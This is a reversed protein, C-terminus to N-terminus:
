SSAESVRTRRNSAHRRRGVTLLVLAGGLLLVALALEAAAIADVGTSALAAIADPATVTLDLAVTVGSSVGTLVIQHAGPATGAPITVTATVTGTPSATVTTLLVPDSHLVVNVQEGPAFGSGTVTVPDGVAVSTDSLTAHASPTAVSLCGTYHGTHPFTTSLVSTSTDTATLLVGTITGQLASPVDVRGSFTTSIDVLGHTVTFSGLPYLGASGATCQAEGYVDIRYSSVNTSPSDGAVTVVGGTLTATVDTPTGIATTTPPYVYASGTIRYLSNGTLDPTSAGGRVDIATAVDHITTGSVQVRTGDGLRVGSAADFLTDNAIRFPASDSVSGGDLQIAPGAVHAITTNVIGDHDPSVAGTVHIGAAGGNPLAGGHVGVGITARDLQLQVPDAGASVDVAPGTNGAIVVCPSGCAALAPAGNIPGLTLFSTSDSGSVIGAGNPLAVDGTADTGILVHALSLRGNGSFAAETNGSVVDYSTAPCRTDVLSHSVGTVGIRNPIASSGTADTGIRNGGALDGSRVGVDNGSIVNNCLVSEIDPSIGVANALPRGDLGLGVINHDIAGDATIGFQTAGVVVNGDAPDPGGILDFPDSQQTIGETTGPLVRTGTWDAGVLNGRIVSLAFDPDDDQGTVHTRAVLVQGSILNGPALGARTTAAGIQVADAATREPSFGRWELDIARAGNLLPNSGTADTGILNGVIRLRLPLQPTEMGGDTIGNGTNGSIVNCDGDCVMGDGTLAGIRVDASQVLIGDVNPDAATGAPNTGIRDGAVVDGGEGSLVIATRWGGLVLGRISSGGGTLTLGDVGGAAAGSLQVWGGTQTSGDISAPVTLTPLATAPAIRPVGAGPIDFTIATATGTGGLLDAVQIAARLTCQNGATADDTDCVKNTTALATLAADGTGNVVIGPTEVVLPLTDSRTRAGLSPDTWSTAATLTYAGQLDSTVSWTITTSAGSGLTAVTAPSPSGITIHTSPTSSLAVSIGSAAVTGTNTITATVTTTVGPAPRAPSAVLSVALDTSPSRDLVYGVVKDPDTAGGPPYGTGVIDGEDDIAVGGVYDLTTTPILSTMPVTVGDQILVAQYTTYDASAISGLVTGADNVATPVMRDPLATEVGAPSRLVGAYPSSTGAGAITGNPSIATPRFDLVPAGADSADFSSLVESASSGDAARVSVLLAGSNTLGQVDSITRGSPLGSGVAQPAAGPSAYFYWSTTTAQTTADVFAAKAVIQGADDVFQPTVGSSGVPAIMPTAAAPSSASWTVPVGPSDASSVAYTAGVILGSANVAYPVADAGTGHGLETLVGRDWVWGRVFATRGHVSGIVVGKSVQQPARGYTSSTAPFSAPDLQTLQYDAATPTAASAPSAALPAGVLALAAIAVLAGRTTRTM